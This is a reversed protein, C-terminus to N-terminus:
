EAILRELRSCSVESGFSLCFNGSYIARTRMDLGAQVARYLFVSNLAARASEGLGFGLKGIRLSTLVGHLEAKMLRVREITAAASNAFEPDGTVLAFVLADFILDEPKMGHENVTIDHIRRAISPKCQATKAMGEEDATTFPVAAGHKNAIPLFRDNHERGDELNVRSIIGRGLYVSLGAEAVEPDAVDFMLLAQVSMALKRTLTRM